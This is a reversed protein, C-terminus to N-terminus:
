LHQGILNGGDGVHGQDERHGCAYAEEKHHGEQTHQQANRQGLEEHHEIGEDEHQRGKHGLLEEGHRKVGAAHGGAGDRDGEDHRQADADSGDAAVTMGGVVAEAEDGEARHPGNQRHKQQADEKLGAVAGVDRGDQGIDAIRHLQPLQEM